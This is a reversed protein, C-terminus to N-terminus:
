QRKTLITFLEGNRMEVRRDYEKLHEPAKVGWASAQNILESLGPPVPVEFEGIQMRTIIFNLKNKM